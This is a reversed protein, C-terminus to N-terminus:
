WLNKGDVTEAPVAALDFDDLLRANIGIKVQSFDPKGDVWQVLDSYTGCGCVGCHHHQATYSRWQYTSVRDRATTLRFQAPEYYAWLAGRKACVLLHLPDAQPACHRGRVADRRLPLKGQHGHDGGDWDPESSL